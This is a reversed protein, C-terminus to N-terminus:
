GSKKKKLFISCHNQFRLGIDIKSPPSFISVKLELIPAVQAAFLETTRDGPAHQQQPPHVHVDM